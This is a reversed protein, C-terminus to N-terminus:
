VQLSIERYFQCHRQVISTEQRDDVPFTIWINVPRERKESSRLQRDGIVLEDLPMQLLSSLAYLNDLTPLSKGDLWHYVSQVCGLSLYARVDQVTLGQKKLLARIQQGTKRKDITPVM